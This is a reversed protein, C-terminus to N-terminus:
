AKRAPWEAIKINDETFKKGAHKLQFKLASARGYIGDFYTIKYNPESM